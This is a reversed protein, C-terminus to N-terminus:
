PAPAPLLPKTPAQFLSALYLPALLFGLSTGSCSLLASLILFPFPASIPLSLAPLHTCSGLVTLVSLCSVSTLPPVPHTAFVGSFSLLASLPLSLSGSTYASSAHLSLLPRPLISLPLCILHLSVCRQSHSISAVLGGLGRNRGLCIGLSEPGM